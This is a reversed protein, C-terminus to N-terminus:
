VVRLEPKQGTPVVEVLGAGVRPQMDTSATGQALRINAPRGAPGGVTTPSHHPKSKNAKKVIATIFVEDRRNQHNLQVYCTFPMEGQTNKSSHAPTSAMVMTQGRASSFIPLICLRAIRSPKHHIIIM